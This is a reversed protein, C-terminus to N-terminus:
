LGVNKETGRSESHLLKSFIIGIRLNIGWTGEELDQYWKGSELAVKEGEALIFGSIRDEVGGCQRGQLHCGPAVWSQTAVIGRLLVWIVWTKRNIKEISLLPKV